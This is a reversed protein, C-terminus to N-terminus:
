YKIIYYVYANKPRTESGGTYETSGTAAAPGAVKISTFDGSSYAKSYLHNHSKLTDGQYSGVNNGTNGGPNIETRSTKDPDMDATGDVGRLFKGRLDPLNFTTTGDGAGWVTGVSLFLSQYQVRDVLAGDCLLWGNPINIGGYSIISGVPMGYTQGLFVDGGNNSLQLTDNSISIIQLENVSDLDNDQPFIVYNGQSLFLTDGSHSLLQLENTIDADLAVSNSNSISLTNNNLSLTQLENTPDPDNDSLGSSLQISNGGTISLLNNGSLTLTQNDTNDVLSSLSVSNGNSISLQNNNFLLSQNDTNDLYDGLYVQGGNSLYLTDNSFNVAQLENTPNTDSDNSASGASEAYLAYPVSLIQSTGMFQFNNGGAADFEVKIFHAFSGWIITAFDGSIITGTGVNINVIGYSNTSLNQRESYVVLGNPNDKLISLQFSVLQNVLVSGNNGRVVAQYKFSQPAQSIATLAFFCFSIALFFFNNRM